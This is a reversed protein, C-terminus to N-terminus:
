AILLHSSPYLEQGAAGVCLIGTLWQQPPPLPTHCDPQDVIGGPLTVRFWRYSRHAETEEVAFCRHCGYKSM